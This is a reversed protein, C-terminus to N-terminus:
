KDRIINIWEQANKGKWAGTGDKIFKEMNESQVKKIDDSTITERNYIIFQKLYKMPDESLVMQTLHHKWDEGNFVIGSSRDFSHYGHKEMEDCVRPERDFQNVANGTGYLAIAFPHSFVLEYVRGETITLRAYEKYIDGVSFVEVASFAEIDFGGREAKKIASALIEEQKM